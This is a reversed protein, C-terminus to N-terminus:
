WFHKHGFITIISMKMSNMGLMDKYLQLDMRPAESAFPATFWYEVYYLCVFLAFKELKLQYEVSKKLAKRFIFMKLGYIVPAMWRAKHLAGPKKFSFNDQPSGLVFLTLDLCERYDDRPQKEISLTYKCFEIVKDRREELINKMWPKSELISYESQDLEPWLKKLEKFPEYEPGMDKDFLTVWVSGVILEPIHGRCPLWLLPRDLAKEVNVCAGQKWGTNSSTTDFCM